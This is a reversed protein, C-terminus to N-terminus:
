REQGGRAGGLAVGLRGLVLLAVAVGDAGVEFQVHTLGFDAWEGSITMRTEAM